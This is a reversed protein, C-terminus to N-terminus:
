ETSSLRLSVHVFSNRSYISLSRAPFPSDPWFYEYRSMPEATASTCRVRTLPVRQRIRLSLLPRDARSDNQVEVVFMQLTDPLDAIYEKDGGRLSGSCVAEFFGVQDEGEGRKDAITSKIRKDPQFFHPPM